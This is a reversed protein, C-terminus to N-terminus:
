SRSFNRAIKLVFRDGSETRLLVNQDRESPLASGAASVGFLRLAWAVADDITLSPADIVMDDVCDNDAICPHAPKHVCHGGQNAAHAARHANPAKFLSPGAPM